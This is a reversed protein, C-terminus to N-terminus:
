NLILPVMAISSAIMSGAPTAPRECHCL